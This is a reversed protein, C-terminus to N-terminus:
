FIGLPARIPSRSHISPSGAAQNVEEGDEVSAPPRSSLSLLEIASQQEHVNPLADECATTHNKGHPGLPSPRDRLKHDRLNPTRGKRPSLPIDKCLSQLNSKQFRTTLKVSLSGELKNERSLPTKSLSANRIVSRGLLNFFKKAYIRGIKRGVLSKLESTYIRSFHRDAPM